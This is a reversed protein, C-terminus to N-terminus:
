GGDSVWVPSTWGLHGDGQRARLYYYRTGEVPRADSWEVSARDGDFHWSRHDSGDVVLTVDLGAGAGRVVASVPFASAESEFESGQPRGAVTLFLQM